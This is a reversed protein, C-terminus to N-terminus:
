PFTVREGKEDMMPGNAQEYNYLALKVSQIYYALDGPYIAGTWTTRGTIAIMFRFKTESYTGFSVALSNDWNSPKLLMDTVTLKYHWRDLKNAAPNPVDSYGPLFDASTDIEFVVHLTSDKLGPRRYLIVPVRVEFEGKPMFLNKIEYHYGAKATSSDLAHVAIVRDRDAASGIVRFTLWATDQTITNSGTAFSYIISDPNTIFKTFYIRPDEKYMLRDDKGCATLLVSGLLLSCIFLQLLRTQM